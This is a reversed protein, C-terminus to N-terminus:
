GRGDSGGQKIRTLPFLQFNFQYVRDTHRDRAAVGLVKKRFGPINGVIEQFGKGSIKVTCSTINRNERKYRDIAEGGLVAMKKHFKAIAASVVKSGTSIFPASQVYGNGKLRILGLRLLLNVSKRAKNVSIAPSLSQALVKLDGKFGEQVVLERVVPHYWESYYRYQAREIRRINSYAQSRM